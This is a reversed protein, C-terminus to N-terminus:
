GMLGQRKRTENIQTFHYQFYYVNFFFTMVGNLDLGIPEASNYHEEMSNKMSFSAIIWLVAGGLRGVVSLAKLTPEGSVDLAIDVVFLLVAFSWLMQAKSTPQVKKMWGAQVIAWIWGFLGCTVVGLLVAVGWHLSPPAPYLAAAAAAASAPTPVPAAVPVPINGIVQTVPVWENMGESRCLDTLLVNGSSVYKQLEALTYPGFEQLDRKIFYNM